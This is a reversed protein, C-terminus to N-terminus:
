PKGSRPGKPQARGQESRRSEDVRTVTGKPDVTVLRTKGDEVCTVVFSLSGGEFRSAVAIAQGHGREAAEIARTVTTQEDGLAKLIDKPRGTHAEKEEAPTPETMKEAKGSRVDVPVINCKDNVVCHVLVQATQGEVRVHAAIARGKSHAEAAAIARALTMRTQQLQRLAEDDRTDAYVAWSVGLAILGALYARGVRYTSM